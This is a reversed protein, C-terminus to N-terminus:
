GGHPLWSEQAGATSLCSHLGLPKIQSAHSKVSQTEHWHPTATDAKKCAVCISGKEWWMRNSDLKHFVTMKNSYLCRTDPASPLLWSITRKERPRREEQCNGGGERHHHSYFCSKRYLVETVGDGQGVLRSCLGWILSSSSPSRETWPAVQNFGKIAM